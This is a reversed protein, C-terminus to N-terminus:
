EKAASAGLNGGQLDEHLRVVGPTKTDEFAVGEEVLLNRVCDPIKVEIPTFAVDSHLPKPMGAKCQFVVQTPDRVPVKCKDGHKHPQVLAARAEWYAIESPDGLWDFAHPVSASLRGLASQIAAHRINPNVHHIPDDTWM